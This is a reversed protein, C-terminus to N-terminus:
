CLAADPHNPRCIVSVSLDTSMPKEEKKSVPRLSARRTRGGAMTERSTSSRCWPVGVGEGSRDRPSRPRRLHLRLCEPGEWRAAVVLLPGARAAGVDVSM